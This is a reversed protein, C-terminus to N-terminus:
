MIRRMTQSALATSRTDKTQDKGKTTSHSQRTRLIRRLTHRQEPERPLTPSQLSRCLGRNSSRSRRAPLLKGALHPEEFNSAVARDQGSNPPSVACRPLAEHRQGAVM